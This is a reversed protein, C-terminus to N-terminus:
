ATAEEEAHLWCKVLHDGGADTSPPEQVGCIDMAHPCRPAFYCWGDTLIHLSPVTGRIPVLRKDEGIKPISSLLGQTYPHLSEHFIEDVTGSEVIWGAYMVVVRDAVGAIVGLDHTIMIISMQMQAQLGMMLNIIQAEVTVDLATTPEDAILLKPGCSLAMAIMARQRMGGSFEHPYQNVRQAPQPIGVRELMDVATALAEKQGVQEHIRVMEMIQEGITYVPNLSTMPEQFIMAIERGRISRITEGQPDLKALDLPAKGADKHYLIEGGAVRGAPRPLTRMISKATVSKGCGSEGVIGLSEASDLHFTVDDVARLVGGDTHFHTELHNVELLRGDNM